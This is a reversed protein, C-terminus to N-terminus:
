APTCQARRRDVRRMVVASSGVQEDAAGGVHGEGVIVLKADVKGSIQRFTRLVTDIDKVPHAYAVHLFVYPPLLPKASFPFRSPDVGLPLIRAQEPRMGIAALGAAQFKTLATLQAAQKCV